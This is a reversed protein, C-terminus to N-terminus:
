ANQRWRQYSIRDNIFSKLEKFSSFVLMAGSKRLVEEGAFGKAFGYAHVGAQRAAYIDGETDGLYFAQWTDIGWQNCLDRLALTKKAPSNKNSRVKLIYKKLNYRKIERKLHYNNAASVIGTLLDINQRRCWKLFNRAGPFLKAKDRIATNKSWLEEVKKWTGNHDVKIGHNQYFNKVGLSSCHRVCKEPPRKVAFWDFIKYVSDRIQSFNDVLTGDWDLIAARYM